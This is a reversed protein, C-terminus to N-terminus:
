NAQRTLHLSKKSIQGLPKWCGPVILINKPDGGTRIVGNSSIIVTVILSIVNEVPIKLVTSFLTQCM